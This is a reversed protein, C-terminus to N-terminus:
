YGALFWLAGLVAGVALLSVAIMIWIWKHSRKTKAPILPQHYATTDFVSHTNDDPTTDSTHYQQPISSSAPVPDETVIPPQPSLVPSQDVSSENAEVAVVDAELERPLNQSVETSAEVDDPVKTESITPPSATDEAFGGLPRKDVKTDALFPTQPTAAASESDDETTPLSAPEPEVNDKDTSDTDPVIPEEIDLPDPWQSDANPDSVTDTQKAPQITDLTPRAVGEEDDTSPVAPSLDSDPTVNTSIPAIRKSNRGSPPTKMDSSNHVMDMFRGARRPTSSALTISPRSSSASVESSRNTVAVPVDTSPAPEAPKADSALASSVAQDLEDFNIDKM